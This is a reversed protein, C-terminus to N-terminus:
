QTVTLSPLICDTVLKESRTLRKLARARRCRWGGALVLHHMTGIGFRSYPCGGWPASENREQSEPNHQRDANSLGRVNMPIPQRMGVRLNGSRAVINRQRTTLGAARYANGHMRRRRNMRDSVCSWETEHGNADGRESLRETGAYPMEIEETPRRGRLFESEGAFNLQVPGRPM